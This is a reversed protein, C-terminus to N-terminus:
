TIYKCYLLQKISRNRIKNRANRSKHKDPKEEM